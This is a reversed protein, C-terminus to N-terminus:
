TGLNARKASDSEFDYAQEGHQSIDLGLEENEESVKLGITKKIAMAILGSVVFSYVAVALV